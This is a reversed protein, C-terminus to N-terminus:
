LLRMTRPQRIEIEDWAWVPKPLPWAWGLKGSSGPAPEGKYDTYMPRAATARYITGKDHYVPDQYSIVLRVHYPQNPYVPPWLSVWDVQIRDLVQEIAWSAVTPRWVGKRDFFGPVQNPRCLDGGAQIRPSLWIRCLDVVQWHTPLGPYGWWGKCRTAHPISIMILGLREIGVNLGATLIYTWPRARPHVPQHLYHHERVTAQAWALDPKTGLTLTLM